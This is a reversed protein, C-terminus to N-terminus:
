IPWSRGTPSTLRSAPNPDSIPREFIVTYIAFISGYSYRGAIM